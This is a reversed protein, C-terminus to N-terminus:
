SARPAPRLRSSRRARDPTRRRGRPCCLPVASHPGDPTALPARPVACASGTEEPGATRADRVARQPPRARAAAVGRCRATFYTRSATVASTVSAAATSSPGASTGSPSMTAEGITQCSRSGRATSANRTPPASPTEPTPSWASTLFGSASGNRSPKDPPAPSPATAAISRFLTTYPFLTSRPPRRIMLFFFFFFFLVFAVYVFGSLVILVIHSVYCSRALVSVHM